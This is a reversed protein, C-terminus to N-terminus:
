DAKKKFHIKLLCFNNEKTTTSDMFPLFVYNVSQLYFFSFTVMKLSIFRQIAMPTRLMFCFSVSVELTSTSGLHLLRFLDLLFVCLHLPRDTDAMVYSIPSPFDSEATVQPGIPVGNRVGLLDSMICYYYTYLKINHESIKFYYERLLEFKTRL